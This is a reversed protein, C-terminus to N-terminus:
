ETEAAGACMDVALRAPEHAAAAATDDLERSRSSPTSEFAHRHTARRVVGWAAAKAAKVRESIAMARRTGNAVPLSAVHLGHWLM